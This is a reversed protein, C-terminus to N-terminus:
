ICIAWQSLFYSAVRAQVIYGLPESFCLGSPESIYLWGPESIYLRNPETFLARLCLFVFLVLAQLCPLKPSLRTRAEAGTAVGIAVGTAPLDEIPALAGTDLTTGGLVTAVETPLEEPGTELSRGM